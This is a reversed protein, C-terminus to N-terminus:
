SQEWNSLSNKLLVFQKDYYSLQVYLFNTLISIVQLTFKKM